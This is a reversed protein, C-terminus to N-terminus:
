KLGTNTIRFYDFMVNFDSQDQEQAQMGPMGPMGAGMGPMRGGARAPDGNCVIVGAKTDRLMIEASGVKTFTKGDRSYSGTITGGKRELKLTLSLNNDAIADPSRMGAMSFNIGNKEIILDLVGGAGSGAGRGFRPNSRYVLKVFNDEDQM